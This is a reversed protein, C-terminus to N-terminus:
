LEIEEVTECEGIFVIFSEHNDPREIDRTDMQGDAFQVAQWGDVTRVLGKIRYLDPGAEASIRYLSKELVTIDTIDPLSRTVQVIDQKAEHKLHQHADVESHREIGALESFLYHFMDERETFCLRVTNEDKLGASSAELLETGRIDTKTLMVVDACALQRDYIALKGALKAYQDPDVCVQSFVAAGGASGISEAIESPVALGTSEVILLDPNERARIESVADILMGKLTCCICGGTIECMSYNGAEMIATDVPIEGFENILLATKTTPYNNESHKLLYNIFTTKGSGLFGGIIICKM